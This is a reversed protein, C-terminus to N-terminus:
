TQAPASEAPRARRASLRSMYLCELLVLGCVAILAWRGYEEDIRYGKADIDTGVIGAGATNEALVSSTAVRALLTEAEMREPDGERADVNVARALRWTEAGAPRSRLVGPADPRIAGANEVTITREKSEGPLQIEAEGNANFEFAAAVLPAGVRYEGALDEWGSAYALTEFLVPVFRQTKPLNTWELRAPFAWVIARGKGVTTEVMAPADDDLRAIVRASDTVDLKLHNYLRVQSFDNYRTGQFLAFVPHDFDVWSLTEFQSLRVQEHEPNGFTVGAAVLTDAISGLASGDAVAIIAQGGDEVYARLQEAVAATLAADETVIVVDPRDVADNLLESLGDAAVARARWPSKVSLPLAQVFFWAGSRSDPEV